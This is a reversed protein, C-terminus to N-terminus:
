PPQGGGLCSFVLGPLGQGQPGAGSRPCSRGASPWRPARSPLAAAGPPGSQPVSLHAVGACGHEQMLGDWPPRNGPGAEWSGPTQCSRYSSRTRVRNCRHLELFKMTSDMTKLPVTTRSTDAKGGRLPCLFLESDTCVSVLTPCRRPSVGLGWLGLGAEGLTLRVWPGWIGQEPSGPGCSKKRVGHPESRFSSESLSLCLVYPLSM